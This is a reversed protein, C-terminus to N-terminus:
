RSNGNKNTINRRKTNRKANRRANRRANGNRSGKSRARRNTKRKKEQIVKMIANILKTRPTRPTRSASASPSMTPIEPQELLEKVVEKEKKIFDKKAEAEEAHEKLFQEKISREKQKAPPLEVVHEHKHGPRITFKSSDRKKSSASTLAPVLTTAFPSVVPHPSDRIIGRLTSAIANTSAPVESNRGKPTPTPTLTSTLTKPNVLGAFPSHKSGFMPPAMKAVNAVPSVAKDLFGSM